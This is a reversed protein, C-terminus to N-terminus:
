REPEPDLGMMKRFMKNKKMETLEVLFQQHVEPPLEPRLGKKIMGAYENLTKADNYHDTLALSVVLDDDSAPRVGCGTCPTFAGFKSAGCYLCIALTM